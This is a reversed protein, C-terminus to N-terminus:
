PIQCGSRGGVLSPDVEGINSNLTTPVARKYHHSWSSSLYTDMDARQHVIGIVEIGDSAILYFVMHRGQPFNPSGAKVDDRERRLWSIGPPM